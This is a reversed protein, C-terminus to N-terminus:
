INVKIARKFLFKSIIGMVISLIFIIYIPLFVNTVSSDFFLIQSYFCYISNYFIFPVHQFLVYPLISFLGNTIVFVFYSLPKNKVLAVISLSIFYIVIGFLFTMLFDLGVMLFPNISYANYLYASDLFSVESIYHTYSYGVPFFLSLIVFYLVKPALLIFGYYFSDSLLFKNIYKTKGIRTIKSICASKYFECSYNNCIKNFILLIAIIVFVFYFINSFTAVYLYLSSFINKVDSEVYLIIDNNISFLYKPSGGLYENVYYKVYTPIYKIVNYFFEGKISMFILLLVLFIMLIFLITFKSKIKNKLM